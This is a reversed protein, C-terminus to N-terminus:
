DGIEMLSHSSNLKPLKKKGTEDNFYGLLVQCSKWKLEQKKFLFEKKWDFIAVIINEGQTKLKCTLLILKTRGLIQKWDTNTVPETSYFFM